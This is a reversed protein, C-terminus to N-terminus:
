SYESDIIFALSMYYISGSFSLMIEGTFVNADSATTENQTIYGPSSMIRFSVFAMKNETDCSALRKQSTIRSHPGKKKNKQKKAAAGLM